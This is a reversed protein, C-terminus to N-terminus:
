AAGGVGPSAIPQRVIRGIRSGSWRRRCLFLRQNTLVVVRPKIIVTWIFADAVAFAALEVLTSGGRGTLPSRDSWFVFLGFAAVFAALGVLLSGQDAPFAIELRESPGLISALRTEGREVWRRPGATSPAADM